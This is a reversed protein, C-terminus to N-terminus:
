LQMYMCALCKAQCHAILQRCVQWVGDSGEIVGKCCWNCRQLYTELLHHEESM